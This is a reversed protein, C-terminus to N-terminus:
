IGTAGAIIILWAELVAGIGLLLATAGISLATWKLELWRKQMLRRFLWISATMALSYSIFEIWFIPTIFLFFFTLVAPIGQVSAIAGLAIGTSFLTFLGFAAGFLPIFMLLCLPFNNKFIYLSLSAIDKNETIPKNVEDYLTQADESSLPVFSGALTVIVSIIFIFGLSYLRKRKTTANKWFSFNLNM